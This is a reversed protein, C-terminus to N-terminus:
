VCTYLVLLTKLCDYRFSGLITDLTCTHPKRQHYHARQLMRDCTVFFLEKSSPLSATFCQFSLVSTKKIIDDRQKEQGEANNGMRCPTKQVMHGAYEAFPGNGCYVTVPTLNGRRIFYFFLIIDLVDMREPLTLRFFAKNNSNEFM